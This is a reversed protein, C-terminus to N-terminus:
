SIIALPRIVSYDDFRTDMLDTLFVVRVAPDELGTAEARAAADAASVNELYLRSRGSPLTFGATESCFSVAFSGTSCVRVLSDALQNLAEARDGEFYVRDNEPVSFDTLMVESFGLSRLEGLIQALYSTTGEAQPNLWYCRDDDMWLSLRNSVFIGDNVHELGYWYDRLAPMRAIIYCGKSKLTELLEDMREAPISDSARGAESSYYFDGRISKVDVLVTSGGPLASVAQMVADFQNELMDASISSGSLQVLEQDGLTSSGGENYFIEVDMASEPPVAAQGGEFPDTASFDLRAGDRSYVVYRGLWLLWCVLGVLAALLLSLLAIGLRSLRRRTRYSINM